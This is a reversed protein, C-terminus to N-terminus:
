FTGTWYSTKLLGFLMSGDGTQQARRFGADRLMGTIREESNDKARDGVHLRVLHGHAGKEDGSLDLLHFSGGPKLVRVVESFTRQQDQAELHHLMLCSFVRDFSAEEYPLQDSFGRDFHASVAARQTKRQARALAKPDPDLGVVQTNPHHRKLMVVMTGTGCGIDLIRHGSQVNAQQILERRARDAGLFSVLPDYLPLLLDHGAAPLFNKQKGDTM